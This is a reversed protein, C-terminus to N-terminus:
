AFCLPHMGVMGVVRSDSALYEWVIGFVTCMFYWLTCICNDYLVFVIVVIWVSYLLYQTDKTKLKLNTFCSPLLLRSEWKKTGLEASIYVNTWMEELKRLGSLFINESGGVSPRGETLPMQVTGLPLRDATFVNRTECWDIVKVCYLTGGVNLFARCGFWVCRCGQNCLLTSGTVAPEWACPARSQLLWWRRDLWLAMFLHSKSSKALKVIKLCSTKFIKCTEVIKLMHYSLSGASELNSSLRSCGLNIDLLPQRSCSRSM